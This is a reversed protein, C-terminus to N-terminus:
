YFFFKRIKLAANDYSGNREVGFLQCRIAFPYETRMRSECPM